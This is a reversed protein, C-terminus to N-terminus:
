NIRKCKHNEKKRYKGYARWGGIRVGLYLINQTTRSCGCSCIAEKFIADCKSRVFAGRYYMFDHIVAARFYEGFPPYLRWLFRPVSAGDTWFGKPATVEEGSDTFYTLPATLVHHLGDKTDASVMERDFRGM